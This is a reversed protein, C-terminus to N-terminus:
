ILWGKYMQLVWNMTTNFFQTVVEGFFPMALILLFFGFLIKVPFVVTFINMQPVARSLLGVGIDALFIAGFVPLAFQVSLTFINAILNFYFIPKLPLAATNIPVYTYSKVMAVVLLHHANTALLIMTALVLHFNGMLPSQAGYFPDITSGMTFGIQMDILQGAGQFIASFAYAVFGIVLGVFIEKILLAVFPLLETPIVPQSSAILPYLIM